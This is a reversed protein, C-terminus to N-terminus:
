RKKAAKRKKLRKAKPENKEAPPPPTQLLAGLAEDVTLPALSLATKTHPKKSM